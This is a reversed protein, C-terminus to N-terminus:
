IGIGEIKRETAHTLLYNRRLIQGIWDAKRRIIIHLINRGEQETCLVEEDTVRDSSIETRICRWMKFSGLYKYQVKQLTWCQIFVISWIYFKALKKSLDLRSTLKKHRKQSPLGPNLNVDVDDM